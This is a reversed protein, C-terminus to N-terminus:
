FSMRMVEKYADLVKNRVQLLFRLSIDAKSAAMMGEHIGMSGRTVQDMALDAAQQHGNVEEFAKKLRQSFGLDGNKGPAPAPRAPVLNGDIGIREPM